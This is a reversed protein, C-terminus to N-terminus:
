TWLPIQSAFRPTTDVLRHPAQAHASTMITKEAAPGSLRSLGQLPIVRANVDTMGPALMGTPLTGLTDSWLDGSSSPDHDDTAFRRGNNLHSYHQDLNLGGGRASLIHACPPQPKARLQRHRQQQNPLLRGMRPDSKTAQYDVHGDGPHIPSFSHNQFPTHNHRFNTARTSGATSRLSWHSPQETSQQLPSQNSAESPHVRNPLPRDEFSAPVRRKSPVLSKCALESWEEQPTGPERFTQSPAEVSGPETASVDNNVSMNAVKGYVLGKMPGLWSSCDDVPANKTDLSPVLLSTNEATHISGPAKSPHSTQGSSESGFQSSSGNTLSHPAGIKSWTMDHSSTAIKHGKYTLGFSFGQQIQGFSEHLVDKIWAESDVGCTRSHGPASKVANTFDLHDQRRQDSSNPVVQAEISPPHLKHIVHSGPPVVSPSSHLLGVNCMSQGAWRSSPSSYNAQLSFCDRSSFRRTDTTFQYHLSRSDASNHCLSSAYRGVLRERNSNCGSGHLESDFPMHDIFHHQSSDLAIYGSSQRRKMSRELDVQDDITFRPRQTLTEGDVVVERTRALCADISGGAPSRIERISSPHIQCSDQRDVQKSSLGPSDQQEEECRMSANGEQLRDQLTPLSPQSFQCPQIGALSKISNEASSRTKSCHALIQDFSTLNLAIANELSILSPGNATLKPTADGIADTPPQCKMAANSKIEAKQGSDFDDVRRQLNDGGATGNSETISLGRHVKHSVQSPTTQTRHINSGMRISMDETYLSPIPQLPVISRNCKRRQAKALNANPKQNPLKVHRQHGQREM